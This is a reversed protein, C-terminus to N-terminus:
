DRVSPYKYNLSYLGTKAAKAKKKKLLDLKVLDELRYFATTYPMKARSSIESATFFKEPKKILENFM